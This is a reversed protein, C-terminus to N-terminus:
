AFPSEIGEVLLGHPVCELVKVVRGEDVTIAAGQGRGSREGCSKLM